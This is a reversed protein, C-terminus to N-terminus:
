GKRGPPNGRVEWMRGPVAAEGIARERETRPPLTPSLGLKICASYM